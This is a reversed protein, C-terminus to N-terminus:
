FLVFIYPSFNFSAFCLIHIEDLRICFESRGTRIMIVCIRRESNVTNKTRLMAHSVRDLAKSLHFTAPITISCPGNQNVDKCIQTPVDTIAITESCPVFTIIFEYSKAQNAPKGLKLM